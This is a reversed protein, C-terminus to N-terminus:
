GPQAGKSTVEGYPQYDIDQVFAGTQDTVFRTGREEGFAFTWPDAATTGRRTAILGGPGPISRTIVSKRAIGVLEDRRYILGGFHKDNRTDQSSTCTLALRQV